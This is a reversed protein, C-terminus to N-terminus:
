SYYSKTYAYDNFFGVSISAGKKCTKYDRFEIWYDGYDAYQSTKGSSHLTLNVQHMSDGYSEPDDFDASIKKFDAYTACTRPKKGKKVTVNQTRTRTKTKSYSRYRKTVSFSRNLVVSETYFYDGREPVASTTVQGAGDVDVEYTADDVQTYSGPLTVSGITGGDGEGDIRGIGCLVQVTSGTVSSYQCNEVYVDGPYEAFDPSGAVDGSRAVVVKKTKVTYTRFKAYQTIKYKGAPLKASSKKTVITKKGKKVTLMKKDLLVKGSYSVRPQYTVKGKYPATKTPLKNITLSNGAAEAAPTLLAGVLATALLAALALRLKTM